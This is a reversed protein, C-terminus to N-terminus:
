GQERTKSEGNRMMNEVSVGKRKRSCSSSDTKIEHLRMSPKSSLDLRLGIYQSHLTKAVPGGPFDQNRMKSSMKNYM